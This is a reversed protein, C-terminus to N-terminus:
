PALNPCPDRRAYGRYRLAYSRLEPLRHIRDRRARALRELDHGAPDPDFHDARAEFDTVAATVPVGTRDFILGRAPPLLRVNIRNEEALMRFEEAQEVQMERMRYLLGGAFAVQLAGLVVARRAIRRSSLDGDKDPRKM